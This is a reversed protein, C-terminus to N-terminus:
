HVSFDTDALVPASAAGHSRLSVRYTYRGAARPAETTLWGEDDAHPVPAPSVPRWAGGVKRVEVLLSEGEAPHPHVLLDVTGARPSRVKVWGASRPAVVVAGATAAPRESRAGAVAVSARYTWSGAERPRPLVVSGAGEPQVGVAPQWAARGRRAEVLLTETSPDVDRALELRVLDDGPLDEVVLPGLPAPPVVVRGRGRRAASVAGGAAVAARVAYAGPEAPRPVEVAGPAGPVPLCATSRWEGDGRRVEVVASEGDALPRGLDVVLAGAEETVACAAPLEPAVVVDGAPDECSASLVGARACAVRYRWRGPADPRPLTVVDSRDPAPQPAGAPRWPGEGRRVEVVLTVAPDPEHGLELRVVGHRPRDVVRLSGPPAPAARGDRAPDVVVGTVVGTDGARGLAPAAARGPLRWGGPRHGGARQAQRAVAGAVASATRASTLTSGSVLGLSVLRLLRVVGRGPGRTIPHGHEFAM